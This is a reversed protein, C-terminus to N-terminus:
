NKQCIKSIIGEWLQNHKLRAAEIKKPDVTIYQTNSCVPDTIGSGFCASCTVNVLYDDPYSGCRESDEGSGACRFCVEAGYDLESENM